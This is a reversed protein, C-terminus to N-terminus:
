RFSLVGTGRSREGERARGKGRFVRKVYGREGRRGKRKDGTGRAPGRESFVFDGGVDDCRMLDVETLLNKYGERTMVM